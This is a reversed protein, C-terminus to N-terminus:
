GHYIHNLLLTLLAFFMDNICINLKFGVSLYLVLFKILLGTVSSLNWAM